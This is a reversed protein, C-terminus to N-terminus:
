VLRGAFRRRNVLTRLDDEARLGGRMKKKFFYLGDEIQIPTRAIRHPNLDAYPNARTGALAASRFRARVEHEVGGSAALAKPYAFDLPAVGLRDEILEISRDLDDAATRASVRDLLIHGHSHSGITVLGTTLADALGGWSAARGGHPFERGLEIFETALYLTAPVHHRELIPLAFDVFDATGDDFTIVIFASGHNGSGARALATDLSAVGPDAAVRAIQEEFLWDPLDVRSSTQRGVRHYLLAVWGQPPSLLRDYIAAAHKLAVHASRSSWSRLQMGEMM